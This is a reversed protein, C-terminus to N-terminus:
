RYTDLDLKVFEIIGMDEQGPDVPLEYDVYSGDVTSAIYEPFSIWHAQWITEGPEPAAGMIIDKSSGRIINGGLQYNFNDLSNM